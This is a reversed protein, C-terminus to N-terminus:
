GFIAPLAFRKTVRKDIIRIPGVPPLEFSMKPKDLLYICDSQNLGREVLKALWREADCITYFSRSIRRDCDLLTLEVLVRRNESRITAFAQEKRM